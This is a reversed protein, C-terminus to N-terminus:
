KHNVVNINLTCGHLNAGSFIGAMMSANNVAQNTKANEIPTDNSLPLPSNESICQNTITASVPATVNGPNALINAM